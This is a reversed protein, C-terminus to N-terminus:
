YKKKREKEFQLPTENSNRRTKQFNEYKQDFGKTTLIPIPIPIIQITIIPVMQLSDIQHLNIQNFKHHM